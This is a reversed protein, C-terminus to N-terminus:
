PKRSNHRWNARAGQSRSSRTVFSSCRKRRYEIANKSYQNPAGPPPGSGAVQAGNVHPRTLPSTLTIGSGSVQAGVAHAGSDITVNQGATFRIESAVPILTAGVDIAAGVTTAGATGVIAIVATELNAGTDVMITQGAASDAMAPQLLFDISDTDLGDRPGACRNIMPANPAASPPITVRCGRQGTGSVAQYGSITVQTKRVVANIPHETALPRDFTIGTGRPQVPETSSDAFATESQLTIGIGRVSFSLELKIKTKM